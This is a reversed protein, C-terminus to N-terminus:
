GSNHPREELLKAASMLFGPTCYGCQVAGSEIFSSQVPHLEGPSGLSEITDIEAGHASAGPGPLEDRGDWGPLRHLRRMRRRRLRGEHRDTRGERILDLLTKRYGNSLTSTKGSPHPHPARRCSPAPTSWGLRRAPRVDQGVIVGPRAPFGTPKMERRWSACGASRACGCWRGATIPGAACMTSPHAAGM